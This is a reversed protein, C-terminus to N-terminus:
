TIGDVITVSQLAWVKRHSRDILIYIIINYLSHKLMFNRYNYLYIDFMTDNLLISTIKGMMEQWVGDDNEQDITAHARM